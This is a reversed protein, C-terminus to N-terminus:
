PEGEQIIEFSDLGPVIVLNGWTGHMQGLSDYFEVVGVKNTYSQIGSVLLIRITDGVQPLIVKPKPKSTHNFCKWSCYYKDNRRYVWGYTPYIEKGCKKCYHAWRSSKEGM